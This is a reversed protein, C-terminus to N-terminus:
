FLFYRQAMPLETAPECSLSQGDAIVEYTEPDVSIQPRLNNHVMDAKGINRCNRVAVLPKQLGYKEAIGAKISSQSVFSLSSRVLAGGAAGFM